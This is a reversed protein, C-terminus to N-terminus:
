PKCEPYSTLVFYDNRGDARLVVISHDCPVSGMAGRNMVRGISDSPENYDLVLNPRRDGREMWHQIKQQNAAIAAGVAREATARDTYSSAASINRERDLRERLQEDSRGVHRKLTHGGRAEDITLDHDPGRKKSTGAASSPESRCAILVALLLVVVTLARRQM